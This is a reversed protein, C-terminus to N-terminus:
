PACVPRGKELMEVFAVKDYDILKNAYTADQPVYFGSDTYRGIEFIRDLPLSELGLQAIYNGELYPGLDAIDAAVKAAGAGLDVKSPPGEPFYGVEGGDPSGAGLDVRSEAM